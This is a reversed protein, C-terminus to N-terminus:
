NFFFFDSPAPVSVENISQILKVKTKNTQNRDFNSLQRILFFHRFRGRSKLKLNRMFFCSFTNTGNTRAAMVGTVRQTVLLDLGDDTHRQLPELLLQLLHLRRVLVEPLQVRQDLGQNDVPFTQAGCM